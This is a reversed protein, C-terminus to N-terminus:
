KVEIILLDRVDRSAHVDGPVILRLGDFLKGDKMYAVIIQKGELKPDIEGESLAVAYGDVGSVLITHKLYANKEPGNVLGANSVITWLLAGRYKGTMPGHDTEESVTVEIPPLKAIEEHTISSPNHVMGTIAISEPPPVDPEAARAALCLMAVALTLLVRKMAAGRAVDAV